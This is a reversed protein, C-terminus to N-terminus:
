CEQLLRMQEHFSKGFRQNRVKLSYLAAFIERAFKPLLYYLNLLNRNRYSLNM